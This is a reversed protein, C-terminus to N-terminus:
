VILNVKEEASECFKGFEFTHQLVWIPLESVFDSGCVAHGEIMGCANFGAKITLHDPNGDISGAVDLGATSNLKPIHVSLHPIAVNKETGAPITVIPLNAIGHKSESILLRIQAISDCPAIDIGLGITDNFVQVSCTALGGKPKDLCDCPWQKPLEKKVIECLSKNSAAVSGVCAILLLVRMM